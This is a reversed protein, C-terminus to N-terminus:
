ASAHLRCLTFIVYAIIRAYLLTQDQCQKQIGVYNSHICYILGVICEHLARSVYLGSGSTSSVWCQEPM